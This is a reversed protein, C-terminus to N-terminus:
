STHEVIVKVEKLKDCLWEISSVFEKQISINAKEITVHGLFLLADKNKTEDNRIEPIYLFTTEISKIRLANRMNKVHEIIVDSVESVQSRVSKSPDLTFSAGYDTSALLEHKEWDIKIKVRGVIVDDKDKYNITIESLIRKNLVGKTISDLDSDDVGFSQSMQYIFYYLTELRTKVNVKTDLRTRIEAM